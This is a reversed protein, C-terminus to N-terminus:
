QKFLDLNSDENFIIKKTKKFQKDKYKKSNTITKLRSGHKLFVEKSISRYNKTKKMAWIRKKATSSSEEISVIGKNFINPKTWRNTFVLKPDHDRQQKLPNYIRITNIGSTGSQMQVQPWHIGPEYDLFLRALHEGPVKWHLWLNYSAFSMLMARMRFNIWGNVKLFNMCADVFDIGTTANKWALFKHKENLQELKSNRLNNMSQHFCKFEIQPETELKQIFHCRWHLRKEFSKLNKFMWQSHDNTQAKWYKQAIKLEHYTERISILGWSLFPSLRSCSDVSTIPSSMKTRYNIARRDFFSELIEKLSDTTSLPFHIKPLPYLKHEIKLNKLIEEPNQCGMKKFPARFDVTDLFKNKLFEPVPKCSSHMFASWHKTWLNRNKLNRIVNNQRPQYWDIKNKECWQMVKLDRQYSLWNGTEQHSILIFKKLQLLIINLIEPFENEVLYMPVNLKTLSKNLEFAANLYFSLHRKSYDNGTWISPEVPLIAITPGFEQALTMAPNDSLRLDRKLWLVVPLAKNNVTM